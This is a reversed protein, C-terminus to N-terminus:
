KEKLEIRADVVVAGNEGVIVPNLDMRNLGTNEHAFKSCKFIIDVLADINKPNKGRYRDFLVNGKIESVMEKVERMELPVLRFSVDKFVEVYIGGLGFMIFKGFEPDKGIGIITEIGEQIMPYAIVGYIRAGKNYKKAKFIIEQYAVGAEKETQIGVKVGGADTKHIIDPSVIKMVIPFNMKETLRGIEDESKILKFDPVPIDYGKLLM